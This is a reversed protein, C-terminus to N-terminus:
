DSARTICHNIPSLDFVAGGSDVERVFRERRGGEVWRGGSLATRPERTAVGASMTAPKAQPMSVMKTQTSNEGEQGVRDSGEGGKGFVFLGGGRGRRSFM